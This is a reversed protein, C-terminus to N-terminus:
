QDIMDKSYDLLGIFVMCVMPVVSVRDIARALKLVKEIINSELLTTGRSSYIKLDFQM